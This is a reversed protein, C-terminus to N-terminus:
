SAGAMRRVQRWVNAFRQEYIKAGDSGFADVELELTGAAVHAKARIDFRAVAGQDILVQLAEEAMDKVTMATDDSLTGREVQTWILSGMERGDFAADMDVSDGWWGRRDDGDDVLYAPARRDTFLQIIIATHLAARARLGGVNGTEDAEALAFDAYGGDASLEDQVWVSDPDLSPQPECGEKERIRIGDM